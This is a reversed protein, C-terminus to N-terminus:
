SQYAAVSSRIKEASDKANLGTLDVMEDFYHKLISIHTKYANLRDGDKRYFGLTVSDAFASPNEFYCGLVVSLESPVIVDYINIGLEKITEEWLEKHPGNYKSRFYRTVM